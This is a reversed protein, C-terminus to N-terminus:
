LTLEARGNADELARMPEGEGREVRSAYALVLSSTSITLASTSPSSSSTNTNLTRLGAQTVRLLGPPSLRELGWGKLVGVPPSIDQRTKGYVGVPAPSRTTVLAVWELRGRCAPSIEAVM